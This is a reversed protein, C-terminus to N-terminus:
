YISLHLFYGAGRFISVHATPPNTNFERFNLCPVVARLQALANRVIVRDNLPISNEFTYPVEGNPWLRNVTPGEAGDFTVEM